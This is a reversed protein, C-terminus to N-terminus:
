DNKASAQNIAYNLTYGKENAVAVINKFSIKEEREINLGDRQAKLVDIDEKVRQVEINLASEISNLSLTGLIAVALVFVIAFIMRREKRIRKKRSNM